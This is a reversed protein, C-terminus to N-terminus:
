PNLKWLERVVLQLFASTVPVSERTLPMCTPYAIIKRSIAPDTRVVRAGQGLTVATKGPLRMHDGLSWLTERM